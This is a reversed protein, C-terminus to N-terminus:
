LKFVIKEICEGSKGKVISNIIGSSIGFSNERYIISMNNGGIISLNSLIFMGMYDEEFGSFLNFKGKNYQLLYGEEKGSISYIIGTNYGSLIHIPNDKLPNLLKEKELEEKGIDWFEEAFRYSPFNLINNFSTILRKPLDGEKDLQNILYNNGRSKLPIKEEGM